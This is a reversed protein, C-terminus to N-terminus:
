LNSNESRVSRWIGVGVLFRITRTVYFVFMDCCLCSRYRSAGCRKCRCDIRIVVVRCVVIIFRCLQFLLVNSFFVIFVSFWLVYICVFVDVDSSVTVMVHCYLKVVEM